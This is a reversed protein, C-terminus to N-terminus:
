EEVFQLMRELSGKTHKLDDPLLKGNLLEMVNKADMDKGKHFEKIGADAVEKVENWIKMSLHNTNLTTELLAHTPKNPKRREHHLKGALAEWSSFQMKYAIDIRFYKIHNRLIALSESRKMARTLKEVEDETKKVKEFGTPTSLKTNSKCISGGKTMWSRVQRAAPAGLICFITDRVASVAPLALLIPHAFRERSYFPHQSQSTRACRSTDDRVRERSGPAADVRQLSKSRCAKDTGLGQEFIQLPQPDRYSRKWCHLAVASRRSIWATGAPISTTPQM